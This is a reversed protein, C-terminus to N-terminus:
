PLVDSLAFALGPLRASAVQEGGTAKMAIEFGTEGLALVELAPALPDVIWYEAVSFHAYTQLKVGRDRSETSPSLVEVVLDPPHRIPEQLNVLHRRAASFFVVDPQLVDYETFVIDLPSSIAIGGREAAYRRLLETINDAVVQHLPLPSPVVFVEGDYIEYRRGDEPQNCLDTYGVRPKVLRSVPAM